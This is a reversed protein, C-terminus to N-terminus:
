YRALAQYEWRVWANVGPDIGLFVQLLGDKINSLVIKRISDVSTNYQIM